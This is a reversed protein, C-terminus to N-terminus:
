IWILLVGEMELDNISINGHEFIIVIDPLFDCNWVIFKNTEEHLPIICVVADAHKCADSYGHLDPFCPVLQAVQIPKNAIYKFLLKFYRLVQNLALTIIIWNKNCSAMAEWITTLLGRRVPICIAAHHLTGEIKQFELLKLKKRKLISKLTAVVKKLKKPPLCITFYAGDMIWILIEKIRNWIRDHNALKKESIHNEGKHGTVEPPTFLTNIGHLMMSSVQLLHTQTVDDRLAVFDDVFVEPLNVNSMLDLIEDVDTESEQPTPMM